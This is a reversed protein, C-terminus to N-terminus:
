KDLNASVGPMYTITSPGFVTDYNATFQFTGDKFQFQVNTVAVVLPTGEIRQQIALAMAQQSRQTGIQGLISQFVPLGNNLDEWWEGEFLKLRTLVAQDVARADVLSANPIFVPDNNQDLLLYTLTPM